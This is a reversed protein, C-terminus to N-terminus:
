APNSSAASKFAALDVVRDHFAKLSERHGVSIVTPRWDGQRLKKYFDSETAEDLASTSEDLFLLEPRALFVRAFALRQQEGLSLRQPWDEVDDLKGAFAELGVIKLADILRDTPADGAPRPYTLADRLAGM